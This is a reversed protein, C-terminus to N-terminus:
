RAIVSFRYAGLGVLGRGRITLTYTGAAPIKLGAVTEMFEQQNGDLLGHGDPATLNWATDEATQPRLDYVGARLAIKYVHEEGVTALRGNVDQGAEITKSLEVETQAEDTTGIVVRGSPIRIRLSVAGPTEFVEM